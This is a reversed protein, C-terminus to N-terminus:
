LSRNFNNQTLINKIKLASKQWTYKHSHDLGKKIYKEREEEDIILKNVEKVLEKTNKPDFYLSADGCIEPLCSANSVVTPVGSKMAELPPLGFGEAFSPFVFIQAAGLVNLLDNYTLYGLMKVREELGLEVITKDIDFTKHDKKGIIVLSYDYALFPMAELITKINKRINVRGLYLFYKEPLDFKKRVLLKEDQTIPRFDDSVGHYVVHIDKKIKLYKTIRDKESNSITIISHAFQATFRMLSYIRREVYSFYNPYDFFLFDHIFAVNKTRKYFIVPSFNQYLCVDVGLKDAYYPMVFMNSIFNLTSPIYVLTINTKQGIKSLIEHEYKQDMRRLFLYVQNDSIQHIFQDVLNRVVVKGSPNGNFYWKADIGIKRM